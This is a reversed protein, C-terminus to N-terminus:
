LKKYVRVYDVVMQQPFVTSSDPYGPWDGGVAVNLLLHFPQDFPAPYPNGDTYWENLTQYHVGDVYWRIEDEEWEICFNHFEDTFNGEPIKFSSGHHVNKPYSAGYHLTGYVKDTEHGLMEMIDIEGSAAWGGYYNNSPLMWIAPWLGHGAPLKARIEFRGYKWDGRDISRLRTSTYNHDNVQEKRATIVLAGDRLECNSKTYWQLENNGWGSPLSYMSGDGIQFEWKNSDVVAGDFEDAWILKYDTNELSTQETASKENKYCSSLFFPGAIVSIFILILQSTAKM